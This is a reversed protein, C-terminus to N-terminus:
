RRAAKTAELRRQLQLLQGLHWANHDAVLLLERLWTVGCHPVAALLDIRPNRAARVCARLDSLFAAASRDWAGAGPPKPSKPWYGDPWPPSAHDPDRVYDLIDRQAIRLHELLQWGSHQAGRPREGCRRKPFAALVDKARAHARGGDLVAIVHQRLSDNAM